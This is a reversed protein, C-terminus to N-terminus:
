NPAYEDEPLATARANNGVETALLSARGCRDAHKGPVRPVAIFAFGFANSANAKAEAGPGAGTYRDIHAGKIRRGIDQAVAVSSATKCANTAPVNIVTGTPISTPDTAISANPTVPIHDV